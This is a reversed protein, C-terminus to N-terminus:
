VDKWPNEHICFGNRITFKWNWTLTLDVDLHDDLAM